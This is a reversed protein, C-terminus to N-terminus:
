AIVQVDLHENSIAIGSVKEYVFEIVRERTSPINTGQTLTFKDPHGAKVYGAEKLARRFIRPQHGAKACWEDIARSSVILREEGAGLVLRAHVAGFIRFSDMPMEAGTKSVHKTALIHGGLGSLLAAVQEDVTYATESRMLRMDMIHAIAWDQIKLLNFKIIGLETLIRGAIIATAILDIFFREKPDYTPSEYGLKARLTLFDERLKERHKMAYRLFMRGVVGHHGDLEELLEQVNVGAFLKNGNQDTINIEFVRVSSADSVTKELVRMSETINTNGNIQGIMDWEHNVASLNGKQDARMRSGGNSLAYLKGSVDRPDRGTLEDFVCPLNQLGAVFPDVSNITASNAQFIFADGRGYISCAARGVATKGHGGDGTMAVPIGHWGSVDFLKVLPSAMLALAVFQYHETNPRNYILNFIRSWEAASGAETFNTFPAHIKSGVTLNSARVVPSESGDEGIIRDGLLFAKYNHHWGYHKYLNMEVGAQKYTDVWSSVYAV